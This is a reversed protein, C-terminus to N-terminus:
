VVKLAWNSVLIHTPNGFKAFLLLPYRAVSDGWGLTKSTYNVLLLQTLEFHVFQLKVIQICQSIIVVILNILM